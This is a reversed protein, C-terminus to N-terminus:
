SVQYYKSTQRIMIRKMREPSYDTYHRALISKPTRGYFADVYRDQVGLAGMECCFWDRLIQLMIRVGTKKTAKKWTKFTTNLGLPFVSHNKDKKVDHYKELATEAEENYFSVWNRKTGRNGEHNRPFIMRNEQDVDEFTLSLVEAKRLGTTAFMLFLARDRLSELAWYFTQLKAKSPIIKPIYGSQPLKFSEVLHGCRLFDRFFV